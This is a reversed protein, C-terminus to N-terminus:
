SKQVWIVFHNEESESKLLEHGVIDTYARFDDLSKPDTTKIELLQGSRMRSLEQKAKLLPMPCRLGRADITSTIIRNNM